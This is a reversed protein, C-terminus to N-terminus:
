FNGIVLSYLAETPQPPSQIDRVLICEDPYGLNECLAIKLPIPLTALRAYLDQVNFKPDALLFVIKGTKVERMTDQMGKEHGKGHAVIVSVRSVPIKLRATALQFSSIGPIVEGSLYGLGALMPDGTSLIVANEPLKKLHKFDDITKVTCDIPIYSKALDIARDSGYIVVARSIERIAQETLMGPGCGVGIIKM